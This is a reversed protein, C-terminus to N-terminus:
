DNSIHHQYGALRMAELTEYCAALPHYDTKSPPSKLEDYKQNKENLIRYWGGYKHDVFYQNSFTWAKDYWRWYREEKTRLALLAAAAFTESLVWYYRDRDLIQGDPAFAYHMGDNEEDWCTELATDFLKQARVLMWEQPHYRELILLLKAWETFHSPLYGYPRFLNKPDDKNYETSGFKANKAIKLRSQLSKPTM